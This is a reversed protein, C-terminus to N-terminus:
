HKSSKPQVLLAWFAWEISPLGSATTMPQSEQHSTAHFRPPYNAFRTDWYPIARTLQPTRSRIGPYRSSLGSSTFQEPCPDSTVCAASPLLKPGKCNGAWAVAWMGWGGGGNRKPRFHCIRIEEQYHSAYWRSGCRGPGGGRVPLPMRVLPGQGAGGGSGGCYVCQKEEGTGLEVLVPIGRWTLAM